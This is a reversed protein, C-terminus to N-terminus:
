RVDKDREGYKKLLDQAAEDLLEKVYADKEAGPCSHGSQTHISWSCVLSENSRGQGLDQITDPERRIPESRPRFEFSGM